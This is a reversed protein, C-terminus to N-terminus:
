AGKRIARTRRKGGRTPNIRNIETYYHSVSYAIGVTAAAAATGERECVWWLLWMPNSRESDSNYQYRVVKRTNIVLNLELTNAPGNDTLGPIKYFKDSIVRYEDRNIRYLADESTGVPGTKTYTSNILLDSWLATDAASTSGALTILAMRLYRASTNNNTALLRIFVRRSFILDCDRQNILEGRSIDTIRETNIRTAANPAMSDSVDEWCKIRRQGFNYKRVRPIFRTRRKYFPRRRYTRSYKRRRVYPM